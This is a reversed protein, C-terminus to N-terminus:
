KQQAVGSEGEHNLSRRRPAFDVDIIHTSAHRGRISINPNKAKLGSPRTLHANRALPAIIELFGYYALIAFLFHQLDAELRALLQALDVVVTKHDQYRSALESHAIILVLRIFLGRM